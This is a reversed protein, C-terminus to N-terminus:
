EIVASLWDDFDADTMERFLPSYCMGIMAWLLFMNMDFRTPDEIWGMM